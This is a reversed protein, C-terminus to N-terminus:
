RVRVPSFRDAGRDLWGSRAGRPERRPQLPQYQHLGVSRDGDCEAELGSRKLFGKDQAVYFPMYSLALSPVGVRIKQVAEAAGSTRPLILSIAVLFIIWLTAHKM